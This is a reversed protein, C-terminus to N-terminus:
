VNTKDVCVRKITAEDSDESPRKLPNSVDPDLVNSKVDSFTEITEVNNENEQDLDKCQGVKQLVDNTVSESMNTSTISQDTVNSEAKKNKLVIGDATMMSKELKETEEETNSLLRLNNKLLGVVGDVYSQTNENKRNGPTIKLCYDPGYRDLHDHDPIDDSLQTGLVCAVVETWCRATNVVNYGGGGLLMLPVGHSSVAEVCEVIGRSTLNFSGLPDGTLGDAGCQCVIVEPQFLTMIETFLESFINFFMTDDVGNKLPVNTSLFKRCSKEFGEGGGTGPFFGDEFNHLSLTMVKESYKFAEEVGDGHHIDLDIYLIRTFTKLLALIGIVIDNVYCFGAAEDVHAHHWGGNLNVAVDAKGAALINAAALTGGAVAACYNYVEPFVTCDYGFGHQTVQAYEEDNDYDIDEEYMSDEGVARPNEELSKQIKEVVDVYEQSHFTLLHEKTALSPKVNVLSSKLGYAEILSDALSARGRVKPHQDCTTRYSKSSIYAVRKSSM